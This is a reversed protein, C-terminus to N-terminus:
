AGEFDDRYRKMLWIKIRHKKTRLNDVSIGLARATEEANEGRIYMRIVIEYWDPNKKALDELIRKTLERLVINNLIEDEFSGKKDKVIQIKDTVDESSDDDEAVGAVTVEHVQYSKRCFDIAKRRANVAFWRRYFEEDLIKEKEIFLVFVEQCVDEALDADHLVSYAVKKVLRYYQYYIKRYKDETM